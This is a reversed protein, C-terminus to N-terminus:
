SDRPRRADRHRALQRRRELDLEDLALGRRQGSEAFPEIEDRVVALGELLDLGSSGVSKGTTVPTEGAVEAPVADAREFPDLM